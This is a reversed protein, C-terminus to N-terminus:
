DNSGYGQPVVLEDTGEEIFPAPVREKETSWVKNEDLVQSTKMYRYYASLFSGAIGVATFILTFLPSTDSRSDVVRGILVFLVVTIVLELSHMSYKPDANRKKNKEVFTSVDPIIKM